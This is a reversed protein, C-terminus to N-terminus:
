LDEISELLRLAYADAGSRVFAKNVVCIWVLLSLLCAGLCCLTLADIPKGGNLDRYLKLGSLVLGLLSCAFGYPLLGYLNRRFGYNMNEEKVLPFKKEDRTSRLLFKCCSLYQEDAASPDREEEQPSPLNIGEIVRQLNAHYRGKTVKDIGTDRHRLMLVSPLFGGWERILRREAKKGADRAVYALIFLVGASVAVGTVPEAVTKINPVWAILGFIVPLFVLFAPSLRARLNYGDMIMNM